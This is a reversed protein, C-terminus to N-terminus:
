EGGGGRLAFKFNWSSSQNRSETMSGASEGHADGNTGTLFFFLWTRQTASKQTKFLRVISSENGVGLMESTNSVNLSDFTNEINSAWFEYWQIEISSFDLGKVAKM